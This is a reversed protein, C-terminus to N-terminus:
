APVPRSPKVLSSNCSPLAPWPEVRRLLFMQEFVALYKNATKSDLGLCRTGILCALFFTSGLVLADILIGALGMHAIDAFTLRLGYLIIGARLLTAKSFTVGAVAHAAIRPYLTNGAIIGIVIALTLASLGNKEFWPLQSLPIAGGGILATLFVGPLFARSAAIHRSATTSPETSMANLAPNSLTSNM